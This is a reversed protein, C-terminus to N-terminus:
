DLAEGAAERIFGRAANQRREYAERVEEPVLPLLWGTLRLLPPALASGAILQNDADLASALPLLAAAALVLAVLFGAAAGALRDMWRLDAAKLLRVMLRGALGGAVLVLLFIAVFGVLVGPGDDIGLLRRAVPIQYRLALWWGLILFGALLLLRLLGRVAGLLVALALGTVIAIDLGNL